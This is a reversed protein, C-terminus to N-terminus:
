AGPEESDPAEDHVDAMGRELGYAIRIVGLLLFAGSLNFCVVAALYSWTAGPALVRFLGLFVLLSFSIVLDRSGDIHYKLFVLVLYIVTASAFCFTGLLWGLYAHASLFETM